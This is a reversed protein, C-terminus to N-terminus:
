RRAYVVPPPASLLPPHWPFFLYCTLSTRQQQTPLPAHPHVHGVDYLFRGLETQTAHEVLFRTANLPNPARAYRQVQRVDLEYFVCLEKFGPNTKEELLSPVRLERLERLELAVPVCKGSRLEVGYLALQLAYDYVPMPTSVSLALLCIRQLWAPLEM